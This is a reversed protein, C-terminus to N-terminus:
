EIELGYVGLYLRAKGGSVMVQLPKPTKLQTDRSASCEGIKTGAQDYFFVQAEGSGSPHPLKTGFGYSGVGLKVGCVSISGENIIMGSYKQQVASSYGSTDLLALEVRAGSPTKILAANRRETPISNGELYFDKVLASDFAKAGLVEFGAQARLAATAGMLTITMTLALSARKIRRTGAPNSM